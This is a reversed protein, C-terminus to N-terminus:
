FSPYLHGEAISVYSHHYRIDSILFHEQQSNLIVTISSHQYIAHIVQNLDGDVNYGRIVNWLRDHWIRDLAKIFAIFIHFLYRQHQLHTEIVTM